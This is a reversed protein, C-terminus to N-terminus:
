RQAFLPAPEGNWEYEEDHDGYTLDLLPTGSSSRM